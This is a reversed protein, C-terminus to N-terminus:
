TTNRMSHFLELENMKMTKNGLLNHSVTVGDGVTSSVNSVISVPTSEEVIDSLM